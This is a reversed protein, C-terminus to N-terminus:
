ASCRASRCANVSQWGSASSSTQAPRVPQIAVRELVDLLQGVGVPLRATSATSSSRPSAGNMASVEAHHRTADSGLSNPV